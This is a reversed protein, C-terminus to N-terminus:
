NYLAHTNIIDSVTHVNKHRNILSFVKFRFTVMLRLFHQYHYISYHQVMFQLQLLCILGIKKSTESFIRVFLSLNIICGLSQERLLNYARM